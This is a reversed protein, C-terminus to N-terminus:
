EPGKDGDASRHPNSEGPEAVRGLARLVNLVGSAFGLLLCIVLAIPSTGLWRDLLWGIASGVLVGAIFESSIKMAQAYGSTSSTRKPAQLTKMEHRQQELKRNLQDRRRSLDVEPPEHDM